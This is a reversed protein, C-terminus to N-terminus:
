AKVPNTLRGIGEVDVTITDGAEMPGIGPPTGTAIVDGPLLTMATSVFEIIEPVGFVLERTSSEQVTKDNLIAQVKLDSPDLETEICPGIPCFTDFSKARSWQGDKTQLDRATVDNVCTYGAIFDFADDARVAKCRKGIVIGLEAEYDVRVTIGGPPYIIPEGPGIVSSPAKLFIIPEEPPEMGMEKAHDRYNLGLAVVKSPFMPPLLKVKSIDAKRATKEWRGGVNGELFVLEEGELVGYGPENNHIFQYLKM